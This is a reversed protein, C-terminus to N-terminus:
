NEEKIIDVYKTKLSLPSFPKGGDRYFKSFYELYQLRSAHVYTGIINLGMNFVHGILFIVLYFVISGPLAGLMNVVTAIVGGALMLAMLRSYSLIDGFFGTIDYLSAIGGIIKGMLTPKSRGQTLLLAAVGALAVWYTGGMALVGIGAFLLWWSGVDFLADLFQGDRILMYAKIAMGAIIQIFGIVLAGILVLLPEEMPSFLYPLSIQKGYIGAITPIADGFFSGTLFGVLATTIGCLTMLGMMYKMTGRLKVKARIILSILILVLGYGIDNFMIGFFITFFPMMLPNPDIGDYSPLSYMETVMNLPATLHNNVLKIPVNDEKEPDTLEYASSFGGLVKEVAPVKDVPIWGKFAFAKDTEILKEKTEEISILQSIRDYYLKILDRGAGLEKLAELSKDIDKRISALESATKDYNEGATGTYDKFVVRNFSFKRLVASVQENHEKHFIVLVGTQERDSGACIAETRDSAQKLEDAFADFDSGAPITGFYVGAYQTDKYDLPIDLELWLELFALAAEKKGEESYLRLLEREAQQIGSVYNMAKEPLGEDFFSSLMTENRNKFMGSKVYAYKDLAKIASDVSQLLDRYESLKTETTEAEGIWDHGQPEDGIETVELCGLLQLEKLLADREAQMAFGKIKKMKAIAM